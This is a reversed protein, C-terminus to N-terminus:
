RPVLRIKRPSIINSRKANKALNWWRAEPAIIKLKALKNKLFYIKKLRKLNKSRHVSVSNDYSNINKVDRFYIIM